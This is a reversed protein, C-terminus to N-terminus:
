YNISHIKHKNDIKVVIDKSKYNKLMGKTIREYFMIFRKVERDNMTKSKTKYKLKKEQLLRWKLVYKFSPVKLYISKDILNFVKKYNTRLENNVKKELDVQQRLKKM